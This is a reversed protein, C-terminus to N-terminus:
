QQIMSRRGWDCGAMKNVWLGSIMLPRQFQLPARSVVPFNKAGPPSAYKPPYGRRKATDGPVGTERQVFKRKFKQEGGASGLIVRYGTWGGPIGLGLSVAAIGGRSV